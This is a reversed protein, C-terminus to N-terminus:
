RRQGIFDRPVRNNHATATIEKFGCKTCRMRKLVDYLIMDPPYAAKFRRVDDGVYDVRRGCKPHNCHLEFGDPHIDKIRLTPPAKSYGGRRRNPIVLGRYPEPIFYCTGRRGCTKCSIRQRSLDLSDDLGVRDGLKFTDVLRAHACAACFIWTRHRREAFDRLTPLWIRM